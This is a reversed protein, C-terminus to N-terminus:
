EVVRAGCGKCPALGPANPSLAITATTDGDEAVCWALDNNLRAAVQRDVAILCEKYSSRPLGNAQRYAAVTRAQDEIVPVSPFSRPKVGQQEYPYGGPPTLEYSRLRYKM